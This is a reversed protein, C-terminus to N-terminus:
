AMVPALQQAAPQETGENHSTQQQQQDQQDQSQQPGAPEQVAAPQTGPLEKGESLAASDAAEETEQHQAAAQM